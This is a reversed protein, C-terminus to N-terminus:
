GNRKETQKYYNLTRGKQPHKYPGYVVAPRCIGTKLRPIDYGAKRLMSRANNFSFRSVTPMQQGFAELFDQYCLSPNELILDRLRYKNNLPGKRRMAVKTGSGSFHNILDASPKNFWEWLCQRRMEEPAEVYLSLSALYRDVEVITMSRIASLSFHLHEKLSEKAQLTKDIGGVYEESLIFRARKMYEKTVPHEENYHYHTMCYYYFLRREVISRHMWTPIKVNYKTDSFIRDHMRRLQVEKLTKVKRLFEFQQGIIEQDAEM